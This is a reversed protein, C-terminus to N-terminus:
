MSGSTPNDTLERLGLDTRGVRSSRGAIAATVPRGDTLLGPFPMIDPQSGLAEIMLRSAGVLTQACSEQFIDQLGM